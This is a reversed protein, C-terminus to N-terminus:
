IIQVTKENNVEMKKNLIFRNIVEAVASENHSAKTIYDCEDVMDEITNSVGIGLGAEKIMPLDNLNDGIAITDKIDVNLIDSLM